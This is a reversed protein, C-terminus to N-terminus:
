SYAALCSVTASLSVARDHGVDVTQCRKIPYLSFWVHTTTLALQCPASPRQCDTSTFRRRRHWPILCTRLQTIPFAHIHCATMRCTAGGQLLLFSHSSDAPSLLRVHYRPLTPASDGNCFLYGRLLSVYVCHDDGVIPLM